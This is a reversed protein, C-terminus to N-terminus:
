IQGQEKYEYTLNVYTGLRYSIFPTDSVKRTKQILSLQFFQLIDNNWEYVRMYCSTLAMPLELYSSNHLPKLNRFYESGIIINHLSTQSNQITNVNHYSLPSQSKTQGYFDTYLSVLNVFDKNFKIHIQDLDKLSLFFFIRKM